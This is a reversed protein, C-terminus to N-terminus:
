TLNSIINDVLNQLIVTMYRVSKFAGSNLTVKVQIGGGSRGQPVSGVLYQGLGPIGKEVGEVWSMGVAWPIPSLQYIKDLDPIDIAFDVAVQSKSHGVKRVQINQALYMKIKRTPDEGQNFGIFGFLNAHDNAGILTNSINTANPGGEIEQTVPHALFEMMMMQQAQEVVQRVRAEFKKAIIPTVKRALTRALQARNTITM